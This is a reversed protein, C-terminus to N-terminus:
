QRARGVECKKDVARDLANGREERDKSDDGNLDDEDSIIDDCSARDSVVIDKRAPM